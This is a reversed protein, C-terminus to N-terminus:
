DESDEGRYGLVIDIGKNDGSGIFFDVEFVMISSGVSYENTMQFYLDIVIDEELDISSDYWDFDTISNTTPFDADSIASGDTYFDFIPYELLDGLESAPVFIGSHNKLKFDSSRLKVDKSNEIQNRHINVEVVVFHFGEQFIETKEVDDEDKLVSIRDTESVSLVTIEYEDLHMSIPEGIFTCSEAPIYSEKKITGFAIGVVLGLIVVAWVTIKLPSKLFWDKMKEFM